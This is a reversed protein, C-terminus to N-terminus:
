RRERGLNAQPEEEPEEEPAPEQIEADIETSDVADQQPEAPALDAGPVMPEQGTLTGMAADLQDKTAQLATVLGTLAGSVATNFAAAQETGIQSKMSDVLAPLDKYQMESTDELMKQVRDVMDRAALVVQAEQVESESIPRKQKAAEKKMMAVAAVTKQEEPNLNQGKAAKDMAAKTKPDNMDVAVVKSGNAPIDLPNEAIFSSLGQEMVMLKLYNPNQQSTYFSPSSRHERILGRVRELMRRAQPVTLKEMTFKSGYHSEFMKAANQVPRNPVLDKLKM